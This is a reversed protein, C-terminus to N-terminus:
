YLPGPNKPSGASPIDKPRSANKFDVLERIRARTQATDLETMNGELQRRLVILRADVYSDIIRWTRSHTDIEGAINPTSM